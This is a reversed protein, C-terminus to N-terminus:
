QPVRPPYLLSFDDISFSIVGGVSYFCAPDDPDYHYDGLVKAKESFCPYTCYLQVRLVGPVPHYASFDTCEWRLAARRSQATPVFRTTLCTRAIGYSPRVALRSLSSTSNARKGTRHARERRGLHGRLAVLRELSLRAWSPLPGLISRDCSPVRVNRQRLPESYRELPNASVHVLKGVASHM